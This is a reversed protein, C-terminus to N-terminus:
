PELLVKGIKGVHVLAAKQWIAVDSKLDTGAQM